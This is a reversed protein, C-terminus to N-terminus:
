TRFRIYFIRWPRTQTCARAVVRGVLAVLWIPAVPDDVRLKSHHTRAAGRLRVRAVGCGRQAHAAGRRAAESGPAGGTSEGLKGSLQAESGPAGGTNEGPKGSLQASMKVKRSASMIKAKKTM